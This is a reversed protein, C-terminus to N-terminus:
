MLLQKRKFVAEYIKIHLKSMKIDTVETKTEEKIFNRNNKRQLFGKQKKSDAHGEDKFSLFKMLIQRIRALKKIGSWGIARKM